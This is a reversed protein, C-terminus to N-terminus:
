SPYQRGSAPGGRHLLFCARLERHCPQKEIQARSFVPRSAQKINQKREHAAGLQKYKREIPYTTDFALQVVLSDFRASTIGRTNFFTGSSSPSNIYSIFEVFHESYHVGEGAM